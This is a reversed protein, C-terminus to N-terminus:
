DSRHANSTLLEENWQSVRDGYEPSILRMCGMLVVRLRIAKEDLKSQLDVDESSGSRGLGLKRKWSKSSPDTARRASELLAEKYEGTASELWELRPKLEASQAVLGVQLQAVSSALKILAGESVTAPNTTAPSVTAYM